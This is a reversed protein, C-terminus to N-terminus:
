VAFQSRWFTLEAEHKGDTSYADIRLVNPWTKFIEAPNYKGNKAAIRRTWIAEHLILTTTLKM